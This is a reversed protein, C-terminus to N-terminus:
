DQSLHHEKIRVILPSGNPRREPRNQAVEDGAASRAPSSSAEGRAALGWPAVERM